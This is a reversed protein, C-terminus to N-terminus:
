RLVTTVRLHAQPNGASHASLAFSAASNRVTSSWPPRCVWYITLSHAGVNTLRLSQHGAWHGIFWTSIECSFAGGYGRVGFEAGGNGIIVKDKIIRPAGTISYSRERDIITDTEWVPEGSEADLAILRGDFSGVYVKGNWVAVGRNVPGCCGQSLHELPVKPDYTWLREGTAADLAYVISWASTTYMVGDVVIPTAENGMDVDLKEAWALGLTEVNGAHIQDLPSYRQEDYTRGHAMWNGPESDADLLRHEDVMAPPPSALLFTAPLLMALALSLRIITM